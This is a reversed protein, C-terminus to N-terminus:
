ERSNDLYWFFRRYVRYYYDKGCPPNLKEYGLGETVGKFIAKAIETGEQNEITKCCDDVLNIKNSYYMMREAKAATPDNIRRQKFDKQLLHHGDVYSLAEMAHKWYSYQRCFYRLEYFRNKEVWYERKSTVEPKVEIGM